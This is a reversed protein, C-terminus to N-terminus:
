EFVGVGGIGVDEERVKKGDERMMFSTSMIGAPLLYIVKGDYGERGRGKGKEGGDIEMAETDSQSNSNSNSNLLEYGGVLRCRSCRYLVRKEFGDERRVITVKKEPILGLLLSYGEQPLDENDLRPSLDPALQLTDTTLSPPTSPLPLIM